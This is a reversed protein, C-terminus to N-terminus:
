RRGDDDARDDDARDDDARDDDARDDGTRSDDAGHAPDPARRLIDAVAREDCGILILRAPRRDDGDLTIAGSGVGVLDCTLRLVRRLAADFSLDAEIARVVAAVRHDHESGVGAGLDRSLADRMTMLRIVRQRAQDARSDGLLEAAQRQVAVDQSLVIRVREKAAEARRLSGAARERAADVDNVSVPVGSNLASM